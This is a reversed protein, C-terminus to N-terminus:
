CSCLPTLFSAYNIKKIVSACLLLWGWGWGKAAPKISLPVRAGPVGWTSGLLYRRAHEGGAILSQWTQSVPGKISSTDFEFCVAWLQLLSVFVFDPSFSPQKTRKRMVQSCKICINLYPWVSLMLLCAYKLDLLIGVLPESKNFCAWKIITTCDWWLQLWM